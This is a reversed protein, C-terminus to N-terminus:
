YKVPHQVWSRYLDKYPSDPLKLNKPIQRKKDRHIELTWIRVERVHSKAQEWYWYYRYGDSHHNLHFITKGEEKTSKWDIPFYRKEEGRVNLYKKQPKYKNITIPGIGWPLKLKDGTELIHDMFMSNWTVIIAKHQERTIDLKPFAKIFSEYAEPSATSYGIKNRCM